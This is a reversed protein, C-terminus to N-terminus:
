EEDHFKMETGGAGELVPAVRHRDSRCEIGVGELHRQTAAADLGNTPSDFLDDETGVSSLVVGKQGVKDQPWVRTVEIHRM